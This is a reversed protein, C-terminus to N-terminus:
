EKASHMFNWNCQLISSHRFRDLVKLSFVDRIVLRYDVAVALFQANPSFCCPGSQKYTETFEM